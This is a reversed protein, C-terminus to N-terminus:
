RIKLFTPVHKVLLTQPTESKVLIIIGWLEVQCTDFFHDLM